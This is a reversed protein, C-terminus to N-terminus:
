AAWRERIKLGALRANRVLPCIGAPHGRKLVDTDRVRDEALKAAGAYDYAAVEFELTVRVLYTNVAPM